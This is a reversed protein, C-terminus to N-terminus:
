RSNFLGEAEGRSFKKKLGPLLKAFKLLEKFGKVLRNVDDITTGSGKAIRRRRAPVLEAKGVREEKTMSLIMAEIKSFEKESDDLDPLEPMGPMMKLLGKISGMKQIAKMQKLYDDFTFTSKRLKKELEANEEESFQEEAKKVLNIIDGMGLIRDAMSVPNFVRFDDLKEGVGEFLLPKKTIERISLAAGARTTGDLMTLISGTIGIKEDFEKAIKVADQGSASNAIFIVENPSVIKKVRNLEDMLEDDVHLRGATDFIFLDYEIEKLAEKAVVVPNKENPLSFVPVDISKGLTELQLIAAPRQLDLAVLLPKKGFKEKFMKALKAAHTTKGSGQLGCILIKSFPKKVDLHAEDSGMLSVLEEHVIKIFQDGASVGKVGESGIAKAKVKKIFESVVTYGVDADLLALRVDRVADSINKETLVKEKSLAYSLEQFKKTLSGFM